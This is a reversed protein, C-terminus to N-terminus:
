AQPTDTLVVKTKALYDHFARRSEGKLLLFGSLVSILLCLYMLPTIFNIDTALSLISHLVGSISYLAGEILMIGIFQRIFLTGITAEEDDLKTIKFGMMRKGPTQGPYIKWPIFIYYFLAFVISLVGGLYAYSVTVHTSMNLVNVSAMNQMDHTKMLWMISMPLTTFLSGFFWDFVYAFLRKGNTVNCNRHDIFTYIKIFLSMIVEM